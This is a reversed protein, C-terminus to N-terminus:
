CKAGTVGRSTRIPDCAHSGDNYNGVIPIGGRCIAEVARSAQEVDAARIVPIIGIEGIRRIVSDITM